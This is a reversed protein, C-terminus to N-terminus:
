ESRLPNNFDVGSLPIQFESHEADGGGIEARVIPNALAGGGGGTASEFGVDTILSESEVEFGEVNAHIELVCDVM